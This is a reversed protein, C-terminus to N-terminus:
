HGIGMADRDLMEAINSVKRSVISTEKCLVKLNRTHHPRLIQDLSTWTKFDYGFFCTNRPHLNLISFSLHCKPEHYKAINAINYCQLVMSPQMFESTIRVLFYGYKSPYDNPVVRLMCRDYIIMDHVPITM